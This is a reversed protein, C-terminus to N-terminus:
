GIRVTGRSNWVRVEGEHGGGCEVECSEVVSSANGGDVRASITGGSCELEAKELPYTRSNGDGLACVENAVGGIGGAVIRAKELAYVRGEADKIASLATISVALMAIGVALLLLYEASAQGRMSM